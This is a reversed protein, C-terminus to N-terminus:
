TVPGDGTEKSRKRELRLADIAEPDDDDDLKATWRRADLLRIVPIYRVELIFVVLASFLAAVVMLGGGALIGVAAACWVTAATTLGKAEGSSTHLILGAGIFGIGTVIGAILKEATLPFADVGLVTFAASGACVLAFTRNGAASGRLEREWGIAFGLLAALAIRGFLELDSLSQV